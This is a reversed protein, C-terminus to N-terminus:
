PSKGDLTMLAASFGVTLLTYISQEGLTPTGGALAGGNMAHRVLVAATMLVMLSALAQLFNRARLDPWHRLQYAAVVSLLAPI